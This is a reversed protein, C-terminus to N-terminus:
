LGMQAIYWAAVQEPGKKADGEFWRSVAHSFSSVLLVRAFEAPVGSAPAPGSKAFLVDLQTEFYATFHPEGERVLKGCM